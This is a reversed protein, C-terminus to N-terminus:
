WIRRGAVMRWSNRASTNTGIYWISKPSLPDVATASHELTDLDWTSFTAGMHADLGSSLTGSVPSTLDRSFRTYAMRPYVPNTVCAGAKCLGTSCTVNAPCLELGADFEGYVAVVRDALAVMSPITCSRDDAAKCGAADVSVRTNATLTSIDRSAPDDTGSVDIGTVRVQRGGTDPVYRDVVYLKGSWTNLPSTSTQDLWLFGNSDAGPKTTPSVSARDATVSVPGRAAPRKFFYSRIGSSWRYVVGMRQSGRSTAVKLSSSGTQAPSLKTVLPDSHGNTMDETDFVWASPTLNEPANSQHTVVLMGSTAATMPNDHYKNETTVFTNFGKRPDDTKSVAIAMYRQM